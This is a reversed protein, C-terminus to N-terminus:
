MRATSSCASPASLAPLRISRMRSPRLVLPRSVSLHISGRAIASRTRLSCGCIMAITSDWRSGSWAASVRFSSGSRVRASTSSRMAVRSPMGGLASLSSLSIMSRCNAPLWFRFDEAIPPTLTAALMRLKMSEPWSWPRSSSMRLTSSWSPRLIWSRINTNSSRTSRSSRSIWATSRSTSPSRRPTASRPASGLTRSFIVRLMDWRAASIRSSSMSARAGTRRDSTSAACFSIMVMTRRRASSPTILRLPPPPSSSTHAGDHAPHRRLQLDYRGRCRLRLDHLFHRQRNRRGQLLDLGDLVCRAFLAVLGAEGLPVLVAEGLALGLHAPQGRLDLADEVVEGAGEGAELVFDGGRQALQGHADGAAQHAAGVLGVRCQQRFQHGLRQVRDAAGAALDLHAQVRVVDLG